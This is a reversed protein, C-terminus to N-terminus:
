QRLILRLAIFPRDVIDVIIACFFSFFTVFQWLALDFPGCKRRLVVAIVLM